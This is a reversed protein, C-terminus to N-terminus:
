LSVDTLLTRAQGDPRVAIVDVRPFGTTQPRDPPEVLVAVGDGGPEALAQQFRAGAPANWVTAGDRWRVVSVQRGDGADEVALSGDWSFAEVRGTLHALQSGDAGYITTAPAAGPQQCCTVHSEAVYRADASAHIEVIGTGDLPYTRTWLIRGTSLQVVWFQRTGIGQGGPQVVVARDSRVSCATESWCPTPSAAGVQVVDRPPQGPSVLQLTAPRPAAHPVGAAAVHCYHRGDDAWAGFGKSGTDRTTVIAGRRGGRDDDAGCRDLRRWRGALQM